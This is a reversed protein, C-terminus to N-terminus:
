RNLAVDRFALVLPRELKGRQGSLIDHAARSRRHATPL